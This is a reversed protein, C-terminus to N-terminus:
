ATGNSDGLAGLASRITTTVRDPHHFVDTATFRLVRRVDPCDTLANFRAIDREHAHRTGHFAYGEIEVVLGAERFLFDPRLPRGSRTLLLPQSEPHLGADRMHLRAITEAPSGSAPDTLTLWRRAPAAGPRRPSLAAAVDEARVLPERRIGRVTRRSLASDAAVVAEERTGCRMLDGVTRAPTTVRLGARVSVDRDALLGTSHVRVGTRDAIGRGGRRLTAFELEEAGGDDRSLMEIRHLRAATGHSCMLDPRLLQVARARVKWDVEKGRVAWAGRCVRQWGESRLRGQLRGRPWGAAYAWATLLVGGRALRALDQM